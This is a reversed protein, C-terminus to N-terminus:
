ESLDGCIHVRLGVPVQTANDGCALDLQGQVLGRSLRLDAGHLSTQILVAGDLSTNRLTAGVLSARILNAGSLDASDLNAKTLTASILDAGQLTAGSLDAGTLRATRLNAKTLDCASCSKTELLRDRAAENSDAHASVAALTIAAAGIMTKMIM